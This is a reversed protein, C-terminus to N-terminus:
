GLYCHLGSFLQNKGWSLTNEFFTLSLHEEILILRIDTFM